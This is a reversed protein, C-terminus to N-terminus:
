HIALTVELQEAFLRLHMSMSLCCRSSLLTPHLLYLSLTGRFKPRLEYIKKLLEIRYPSEDLADVVLYIRAYSSAMESFAGFLIDHSLPQDRSVTQSLTESTELLQQLISGLMDITTSTIKYTCHIGAVGISSDSRSLMRLYDYILSSIITKGAGPIGHCWLIDNSSSNLWGGFEVSDLLWQGTGETRSTSVDRHTAKFDITSLRAVIKGRRQIRHDSRIKSIDRRIHNLDEHVAATLRLTDNTLAIIFLSKQRDLQALIEEIEAKDFPWRVDYLWSKVQTVRKTSVTKCGLHDRDQGQKPALKRQLYDLRSEFQFIPGNKSEYLIEFTKMRRAADTEAFTRLVHCLDTAANIEAILEQQDSTAGKASKILTVVTSSIQIVAVLAGIISIPDAMRFLAVPHGLVQDRVSPNDSLQM